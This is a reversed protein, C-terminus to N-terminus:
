IIKGHDIVTRLANLTLDHHVQTNFGLQKFTTELAKADKLTGHRPSLGRVSYQFHNFILCMGREKNRLKYSIPDLDKAYQAYSAESPPGVSSPLSSSELDENEAISSPGSSAPSAVLAKDTDCEERMLKGSKEMIKKRFKEFERDFAEQTLYTQYIEIFREISQPQGGPRLKEHEGTAIIKKYSGSDLEDKVCFGNESKLQEMHVKSIGGTTDKGKLYIKTKSSRQKQQTATKKVSSDQKNGQNM